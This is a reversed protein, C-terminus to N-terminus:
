KKLLPVPSLKIYVYWTIQCTLSCLSQSTEWKLCYTRSWIPLLPFSVSIVLAGLQPSYKVPAMPHAFSRDAQTFAFWTPKIEPLGTFSFMGPTLHPLTSDELVHPRGQHLTHERSNGEGAAEARGRQGLVRRWTLNLHQWGALPGARIHPFGSGVRWAITFQLM